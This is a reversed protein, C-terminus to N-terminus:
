RRRWWSYIGTGLVMLPFGFLTMLTVLRQQNATLTIRRDGAERPRIAILNEQQALWNVSNALLNPNGAIGAYANSAFDSDGFVVIRTEAKPASSDSKTPQEAPTQTVPASVAAAITVPGEKDGKATDLSVSKGAAVDALNTEAWSRPSTEVVPQANHGNAGGSIPQVSRALPFLTLTGFRETIPHSPYTLAVAVSPENTAGSVDVVVNNGVEIAWEKLLQELNPLMSAKPDLSPDVLVMLKGAKALYRKLSDVEQPLLDSTPGAVVVVTADAPVDKQQALPLKEVKYNDRQLAGSVASYGDRETGTPDKEGHGQTFYVTLQKGSTAKILGNTIEQESDSTVREVRDKYTIVVTGYQQVQYQRAMVPKLDPDVYEVNVKKSQYAYEDLRNRFRDLRAPQDFAIFKVPADLNRLLKITQDSLSFQKNATLDWRKNERASLYNVAVLIGLVVLVSVTALAGYRAQRRRFFRAMDRWQGAVYVLVCALGVMAAYFVWKDQTATLTIRGLWNLVRVAAAVFVIGTGLWGIFGFTRQM